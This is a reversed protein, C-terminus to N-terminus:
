TRGSGAATPPTAWRERLRAAVWETLRQDSKGRDFELSLQREAAVEAAAAQTAATILSELAQRQRALTAIAAATASRQGALQIVAARNLEEVQRALAQREATLDRLPAPSQEPLPQLSRELDAELQAQQIRRQGEVEALAKIADERTRAIAAERATSRLQAIKAEYADHLQRLEAARQAFLTDIERQLRGRDEARRVREEPPYFTADLPGPQLAILRLYLPGLRDAYRRAIGNYEAAYLEREQLIREEVEAAANAVARRENRAAQRRLQAARADFDRKVREAIVAAMQARQAAEVATLTAEVPELQAPPPSSFLPAEPTTVARLRAIKQDLDRVRAWGPHVAVLAGLDV